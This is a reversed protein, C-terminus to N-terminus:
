APMEQSRRTQLNTMIFFQSRARTRGPMQPRWSGSEFQITQLCLGGGIRVARSSTYRPM